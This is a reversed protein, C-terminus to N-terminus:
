LARMTNTVTLTFALGPATGVGFTPLRAGFLAQYPYNVQVRVDGGGVDTVAVQGTALGPLVPTGSAVPSGFVVLNRAEAIVPATLNVIGTTDPIARGAVHRVANRVAHSLTTYQIFVRSLEGAAVLLLLLVPVSIAFEVTALGQQRRLPNM